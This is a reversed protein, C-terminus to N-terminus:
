KILLEVRRNRAWCAENSDSCLPRSEGYGRADLRKTDVGHDVLYQKIAAARTASMRLNYDDAGRADTHVGIELHAVQANAALTRAVEDLLAHSAAKITAKGTDFAIPEALELRDARVVVKADPTATDARAPSSLLLVLVLGVTRM